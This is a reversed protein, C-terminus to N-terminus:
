PLLTSHTKLPLFYSAHKAIASGTALVLKLMLRHVIPLYIPMVIYPMAPPILFGLNNM